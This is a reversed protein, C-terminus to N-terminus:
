RQLTRRWRARRAGDGHCMSPQEVGHEAGQRVKGTGPSLEEVGVQGCHFAISMVHQVMMTNFRKM